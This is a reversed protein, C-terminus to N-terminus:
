YGIWDGSFPLEAYCAGNVGQATVKIDMDGFWGLSTFAGEITYDFTVRTNQSGTVGTVYGSMKFDGNTKVTGEFDQYDTVQVAPNGTTNVLSGIQNNIQIIEMINDIGDVSFTEGTDCTAVAVPQTTITYRGNVEPANKDDSGSGGGCGTLIFFCALFIFLRM